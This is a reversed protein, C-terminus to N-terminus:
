RLVHVQQLLEFYANAVDLRHLTELAQEFRPVAEDSTESATIVMLRRDIDAQETRFAQTRAQLQRHHDNAAEKADSLGQQAETLQQKLLGHQTHINALLGGLSDLDGLTQLKDDLYDVVRSDM